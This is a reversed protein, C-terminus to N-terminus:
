FVILSLHKKEQVLNKLCLVADKKEAPTNLIPPSELQIELNELNTTFSSNSGLKYSRLLHNDTNSNTCCSM